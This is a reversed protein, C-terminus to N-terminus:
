FHDVDCMTTIATGNPSLPIDLGCKAGPRVDQYKFSSGIRFRINFRLRVLFFFIGKKKDDDFDKAQEDDFPVVTQGMFAGGLRETSGTGLRFANRWTVVDASSFTVGRYSVHAVVQDYYINLRNNPNEVTFNIVVKYRLSSDTKTYNFQSLTAETVHFRFPRPQIILYSVFLVLFIFLLFVFISGLVICLSQFACCCCQAARSRKQPPRQPPAEYTAAASSFQPEKDAM